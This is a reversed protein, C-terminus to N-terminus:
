IAQEPSNPKLLNNEVLINLVRSLVSLHIKSRRSIDMLDNKGDSLNLLWMMAALENQNGKQTGLSPYLGRKGLQPEGFPLQNVYKKNLELVDIIDLFRRVSSEMAPFSIYDKNDASTHYESYKEYMTRMLSGVPLDFGPSCYQREDSGIPSFPIIEHVDEAQSLVISVVRDGLSDGKRSKKYTFNGGDGICTLIFGADLKDKLHNGRKSLYYITGITEPQFAFRYTYRLKKRMLLERYVFAAVLVGSLENSALSPHCFYTSILIERDSTGEIVAEAVTMSGQEDLTSDILVEYEDSRDLALYDRHSLCFGWRRKYYSTIYPILEPQQPLTYLHKDLKSFSLKGSYPESYGLLHLNHRAFDIVKEGKSNKVWASTVNWEPPVKWDFCKTGSPVEEIKLDILETLIKLTERNGNGTLSRNLPWLRDFYEEIENKM